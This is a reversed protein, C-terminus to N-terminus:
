RTLRKVLIKYKYFQRIATFKKSQAICIRQKRLGIVLTINEMIKTIQPVKGVLFSYEVNKL